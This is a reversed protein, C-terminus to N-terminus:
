ITNNILSTIGKEYITKIEEVEKQTFVRDEIYDDDQVLTQLQYILTNNREIHTEAYNLFTQWKQSLWNRLLLFEDQTFYNGDSNRDIILNYLALITDPNDLNNSIHNLLFSRRENDSAIAEAAWAAGHYGKTHIVKSYFLELLATQSGLKAKDYLEWTNPLYNSM